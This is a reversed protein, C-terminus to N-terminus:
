PEEEAVSEAEGGLLERARLELLSELEALSGHGEVFRAFGLLALVDEADRVGITPLHAGLSRPAFHESSFAPNAHVLATRREPDLRTRFLRAVEGAAGPPDNDYGDSVLVVLEPRAELADLLPTALDTAGRPEVLLADETPHTWFPRYEQAAHRLLYHTALAVALPRRARERSGSSSWSRDLVAAVRGLRRPTRLFAREASRELAGHLREHHARREALPLSLVYLALRTLPVRSLDVDLPVEERGARALARLRELATMRESIRELFAGAEHGRQAAYGEAVTYPLAYAARASYKAGRAAELLPADFHKASKREFLFAGLEGPLSLHAHSAAWGVRRGYKVAHFPADRLRSVYDRITARTRRNNVRRHRLEALLKWARQSPLSDLTARLLANEEARQSPESPAGAALLNRVALARNFDNLGLALCRAYLRRYNGLVYEHLFEVSVSASGTRYFDEQGTCAFGANVFSVLDEREIRETHWQM